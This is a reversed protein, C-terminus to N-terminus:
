FLNRRYAEAVAHARDNVGLLNFINRFERKLTTQSIYLRSALEKSSLGDAVLKLVDQQRETPMGEGEAGKGAAAQDMLHRTLAADVPSQGLAAQYM